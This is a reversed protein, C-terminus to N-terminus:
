EDRGFKVAEGYFLRFVIVVKRVSGLIFSIYSSCVGVVTWWPFVRLGELKNYMM